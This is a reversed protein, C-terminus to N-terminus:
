PQHERNCRRQRLLHKGEQDKSPHTDACQREVHGQRLDIQCKENGRQQGEQPPLERATILDVQSNGGDCRQEPSRQNHYSATMVAANRTRQLHPPFVEAKNIGKARLRLTAEILKTRAELKVLSSGFVAISPSQYVGYAHWRYQQACFILRSQQVISLGQVCQQEPQIRPNAGCNELAPLERGFQNSNGAFTSIQGTVRSTWRIAHIHDHCGQQLGHSAGVM